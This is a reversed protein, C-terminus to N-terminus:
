SWSPQLFQSFPFSNLWDRCILIVYRAQYDVLKVTVLVGMWVYVQHWNDRQWEFVHSFVWSSLMNISVCAVPMRGEWIGNPVAYANGGWEATVKRALPPCPTYALLKGPTSVLTTARVLRMLAQHVHHRQWIFMHSRLTPQVAMRFRKVRARKLDCGEFEM